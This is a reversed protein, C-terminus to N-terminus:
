YSGFGFGSIMFLFNIKKCKLFTNLTIVMLLHKFKLPRDRLLKTSVCIKKQAGKTIYDRNVKAIFGEINEEDIFEIELYSLQQFFWYYKHIKLYYLWKLVVQDMDQSVITINSLAQPSNIMPPKNISTVM